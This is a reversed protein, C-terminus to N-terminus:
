AKEALEYHHLSDYFDFTHGDSPTPNPTLEIMRFLSSEFETVLFLASQDHGFEKSFTLLQGIQLDERRM